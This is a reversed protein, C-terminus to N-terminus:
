FKNEHINGVKKITNLDLFCLLTAGSNNQSAFSGLEESYIIVGRHQVVTQGYTIQCEIIDGKYIKEKNIDYIGTFAEIIFRKVPLLEWRDNEISPDLRFVGINTVKLPIYEQEKIIFYRLKKDWARYESNM